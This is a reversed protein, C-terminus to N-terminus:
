SLLYSYLIAFIAVALGLIIFLVGSSSNSAHDPKVLPNEEFTQRASPKKMLPKSEIRTPLDSEIGCLEAMEAFMEIHLHYAKISENVVRDAEEKDLPLSDLARRYRQKFEGVKPINDFEYFQIGNSDFLNYTKVFIKKLVQGGSLDGMFRIYQHAVLLMPDEESLQRLRAMYRKTAELPEIEDKWDSGYFYELDEVIKPTRRLETPFYVPKLKPHSKHKDGEKELTSYIFYLNSLYLKYGAPDIKGKILGRVFPSTETKKHISKTNETLEQHLVIGSSSLLLEAGIEQEAEQASEVIVRSTLNEEIKAIMLKGDSCVTKFPCGVDTKFVPCEGIQKQMEVCVEHIMKLSELVEGHSGQEEEIEPIEDLKSYIDSLSKCEKFACGDKFKPCNLANKFADSNTAVNAFPCSPQFAPCAEQLNVVETTMIKTKTPCSLVPKQPSAVLSAPEVLHKGKDDRVSKFPCGEDKHFVPCEGLKGELCESTDHMKKFLEILKQGSLESEHGASHPVHSLKEYVEALSKASNFPCGSKFEPCKEIAEKMDNDELKTFPCGDKFAPCKQKIDVSDVTQLKEMVHQDHSVSVVPEVLHKGDDSRVSKFPCGQDKHFVPCDGFKEELCESTDHIKKFMDIMMKGSLESEHGASHPVHTLKEYIDALNKADKFPCGNEFDPCKAIAEKIEKDELKTFPCGDKFAPCHQQLHTADIEQLEEIVHQEHAVSKVPEALHKGKENRVSKFPCGQDKHFIPCDGLKEELCESTDHMKKFMEIMKIGSLESEHGASHPVHSLKEYVDAFSKADKFPCGNKFEPCKAIADKMNQDGLNTFPCGDKFAPCHQQLQTADIEQLEEIVHQEHAVSQVPEALHKGEENRVSKFPCGQDKHFIPCDGLKEELCESTDHMKKFMEIMKIGSLESEHGASHPVHSLKEYVEAFSKADKFPCGNKFEPCKAIADKMNQDELNTFPCGDKFAPCHQQLQTADIEQLEEIVHQDHAVSEVPEVLHKGEVDRVNKFPCGDDKHFVPCDGMKEELCESTDHMKKFIEILKQGSFESEHGASHPVHSLEEYIDALSKADKFPCGNQFQPCKEISQMLQKDVVKAFPCGEQFSPCKQKLDSTQVIKLDEDKM